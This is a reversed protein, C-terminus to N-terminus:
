ELVARPRPLSRLRPLCRRHRRRQRAQFEAITKHDPVLRGILWMVEVKREVRRSSRVEYGYIYLKLLDCPDYGPRGASAPAVREFGLASFDLGDVFVDIVCLRTGM